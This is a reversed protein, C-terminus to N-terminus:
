CWLSVANEITQCILLKETASHRAVAKVSDLRTAIAVPGGM